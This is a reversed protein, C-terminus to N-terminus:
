FILRQDPPESWSSTTDGSSSSNFPADSLGRPTGVTSTTAASNGIPPTGALVHYAARLMAHAVAVIAKRHGRHRMIRRYRAALASDKKRTAALHSRRPCESALPEGEAGEGVQTQGASENNDPCLGAWSALHRDDQFVSMDMGIEAILIEATRRNVGPITDLRERVEGFPALAKEIHETLTKIGEDQYDLQALLRSV